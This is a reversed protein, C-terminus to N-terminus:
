FYKLYFYIYTIIKRLIEKELLFELIFLVINFNKTIKNNEVNKIWGLKNIKYRGKFIPDIVDDLSVFEEDKLNKYEEKIM